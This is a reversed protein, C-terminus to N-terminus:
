TKRGPGENSTVRFSCCIQILVEQKIPVASAVEAIDRDFPKTRQHRHLLTPGQRRRIPPRGHYQEPPLLGYREIPAKSVASQSCYGCDEQCAGSKANMLM